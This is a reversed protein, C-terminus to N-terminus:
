SETFYINLQLEIDLMSDSESEKASNNTIKLKQIRTLREMEDIRKFFDVSTLYSGKFKMIIPLTHFLDERMPSGPVILQDSFKEDALHGSIDKLFGGLEQRGPLRRDFNKYRKRMSEVQKVLEPVIAVTQSKTNLAAQASTIKMKLEDLKTGQGRYVLLVAGAVMASIIGLVIWSDKALRM